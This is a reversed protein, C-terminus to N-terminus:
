SAGNRLSEHRHSSLNAIIPIKHLMVLGAKAGTVLPVRGCLEDRTCIIAARPDTESKYHAAKGRLTSCLDELALPILMRSCGVGHTMTHYDSDTDSPKGTNSNDTEHACEKRANGEKKEVVCAFVVGLGQSQFGCPM